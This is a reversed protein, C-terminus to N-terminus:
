RDAILYDPELLLAESKYEHRVLSSDLGLYPNDQSCNKTTGRLGKMFISAFHGMVHRNLGKFNVSLLRENM